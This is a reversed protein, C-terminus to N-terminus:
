RPADRRRDPPILQMLDREIADDLAARAGSNKVLQAYRDRASQATLSAPDM